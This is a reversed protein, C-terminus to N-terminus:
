GRGCRKRVEADAGGLFVRRLVEGATLMDVRKLEEHARQAGEIALTGDVVDRVKEAWPWFDRISDKQKVAEELVQIVIVIPIRRKNMRDLWRYPNLDAKELQACLAAIRYKQEQTPTARGTERDSKEDCPFVKQSELFGDEKGETQTSFSVAAEAAGTKKSDKKLGKKQTAGSQDGSSSVVKTGVRLCRNPTKEITESVADKSAEPTDQGAGKSQRHTKRIRALAELDWTGPEPNIAWSFPHQRGQRRERVLVGAKKLAIMADVVHRRAIGTLKAVQAYSIVDEPRGWGCTQKAILLIIRFERATFRACILAEMFSNPIGTYPVAFRPEGKGRRSSSRALWPCAAGGDRPGGEDQRDALHKNM